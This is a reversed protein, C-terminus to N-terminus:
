ALIGCAPLRLSFSSSRRHCTQVEQTYSLLVPYEPPQAPRSDHRHLTVRHESMSVYYTYVYVKFTFTVSDISSSTSARARSSAARRPVETFWSIRSYRSSSAESRLESSIM